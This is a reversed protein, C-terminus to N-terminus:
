LSLYKELLYVHNRAQIAGSDYHVIIKPKFNQSKLGGNNTKSVTETYVICQKGDRVEITLQDITLNVHESGGRLGFHLGNLFFLSNLLKQPSDDGLNHKWLKEEDEYSLVGVCKRNLSKGERALIKM